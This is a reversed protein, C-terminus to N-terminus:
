QEMWLGSECRSSAKKNPGRYGAPRVWEDRAPDHKRPKAAIFAPHRTRGILRVEGDVRQFLSM